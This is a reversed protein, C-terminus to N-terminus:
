IFRVHKLGNRSIKWYLVGDHTQKIMNCHLFFRINSIKSIYKGKTEDFVFILINHIFGTFVLEFFTCMWKSSVVLFYKLYKDCSSIGTLFGGVSSDETINWTIKTWLCRLMALSTVLFERHRWLVEALVENRSLTGHYTIGIIIKENQKGM